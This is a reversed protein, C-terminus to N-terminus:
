PRVFVRGTATQNGYGDRVVVFYIGGQVGQLDLDMLNYGQNIPFAKSLIRSGKSDFITVTQTKLQNTNSINNYLSVTFQGRNPNPYIFVTGTVSDKITLAASTRNCFGNADAAEVTYSGIKDVSVVYTDATYNPIVVGDKRWVFTFGTNPTVTAKLTVTRGPLLSINAPIATLTVTPLPNAVVSVQSTSSCNNGDTGTVTYTVTNPSGPNAASVTPNVVVSAGTLGVPSWSYTTAGSASLTVPSGTCVNAVNSASTVVPLANVTVTVANSTAPSTCTSNSLLVQFINGSNASTVNSLTYLAANAGAINTFSTGGNTSTQWQYVINSGTGAVTFTANSGSCATANTPQASIATPSVVNLIAATSTAAPACTGSVLVQYQNGNLAATTNNISYTANIAGTINNFSTGGNTSVLWQYSVNTGSAAANFTVNSGACLTASNPQATIQPLANVNLTAVSSTSPTSCTASNVIVRYKNGNLSVTSSTSYTPNTAGAINTFTAGGNTSVQWQYSIGSGSAASVFTTTAGECNVINEPQTTINPANGVTLIASNSTVTGPCSGTVIVKYQNNNQGLTVNNITYSSANAGSINTFSTGGNTSIQWQYNLGGGAGTVNFTYNSGICVSADTPQATIAPAADVTLLAANTNTTGCTATAVVRYRTNNIANSVNTLTYSLGTAGTINTYTTGGDTSVQWQYTNGSGSIATNFTVNEGQCLVANNPQSTVSPATGPTITFAIVTNVISTGATGTVTVNYTGAALTNSNNLTVTTPTGPTITSPSFSVTTGAPNGSATMVIPTNFGGIATTGLDTNANSSSGCATTSGANPVFAFSQAPATISFNFNNIDFFINGVSEVKIRATTTVNNPVTITETGDNATSTALVVPWTFGGDTSLLINVNACNVPAQDSGNVTWTVTQTTGAQWSVGATNPGSVGFPGSTGNISVIMNDSATGGGIGHNDRVTFRFNLNRAVSPLVEWQFGNAGTLIYQLSPFITTPKTTPSYIRFMPGTTATASPFATGVTRNDNQEWVYTLVDSADNDTGSGTLAFPTSRPILYDAGANATPINNANAVPVTCGNGNGAYMYTTIQQISRAHFHDISHDAVDTNGTIGAYGMITIGSGPEVNVGSGEVNFSFTHNGGMQHGMEHTLYDIVYLDTLSPNSYVTWGLGKQGNICVCGICGANGNDSGKSQTHGIDYNAAGIRNNMATQLATNTPNSANAIPDSAASLYIITDNNPVLVLRISFDREFVANARTMHSNQAALVRAKKQADTVDTPQIFHLSFEGGSLLALRYTRLTPQNADGPRETETVSNNFSETLCNFQRHTNFKDRSTVRYFNGEIQDVYVTSKNGFMIMANTGYPSIDFRITASPDNIGKGYYASIGPYKAALDSHMVPAEVVRFSEFAGNGIPFNVIVTSRSAEIRSENPASRLLNKYANFNLEFVDYSVPMNAGSILSKNVKSVDSSTWLTNQQAQTQNVLFLQCTAMLLFAYFKKM